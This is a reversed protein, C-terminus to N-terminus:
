VSFANFKKFPKKFPLANICSYVRNNRKVQCPFVLQFIFFLLCTFYFCFVCFVFSNWDFLPLLERACHGVTECSWSPPSRPAAAAGDGMLPAEWESRTDASCRRVRGCCVCSRTANPRPRRSRPAGSSGSCSSGRWGSTSPRSARSSASPCIQPRITCIPLCYSAFCIPTSIIFECNQKFCSLHM